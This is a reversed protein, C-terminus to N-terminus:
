SFVTLCAASVSGRGVWDKSCGWAACVLVRLAPLGILEGAFEDVDKGTVVDAVAAAVAGSDLLVFSGCDGLRLM